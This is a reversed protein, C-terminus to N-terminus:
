NKGNKRKGNKKRKWNRKGNKKKSCTKVEEYKRAYPSLCGLLKKLM